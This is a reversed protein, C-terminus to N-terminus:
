LVDREVFAGEVAFNGPSQLYLRDAVSSLYYTGQTYFDSYAVVFKGSREKFKVLADRLEEMTAMGLPMVPSLNLYIGDIHKDSEARELAGLVDLLGLERNMRMTVWDLSSLAGQSPNDVVPTALDIKLVTHAAPSSVAATSGSLASVGIGVLVMVGLVAFLIGGAVVALLSAFFTKFFANM